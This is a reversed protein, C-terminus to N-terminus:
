MRDKITSRNGKADIFWSDYYCINGSADVIQGKNFLNIDVNMAYRNANNKSFEELRSRFSAEDITWMYNGDHFCNVQIYNKKSIYARKSIQKYVDSKAESTPAITSKSEGSSSTSYSGKASPQYDRVIGGTLKRIGAWVLRLLVIFVLGLPSAMLFILQCYEKGYSEFLRSILVCFAVYLVVRLVLLCIIKATSEIEETSGSFKLLAVSACNILISVIGGFLFWGQNRELWESVNAISKLLSSDVYVEKITIPAFSDSYCYAIFCYVGLVGAVVKLFTLLKSIKWVRDKWSM